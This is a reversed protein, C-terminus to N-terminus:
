AAVTEAATSADSLGGEAKAGPKKTEDRVYRRLRDVKADATALLAELGAEAHAPGAEGGWFSLFILRVVQKLHAATLTRVRLLDLVAVRAVRSIM